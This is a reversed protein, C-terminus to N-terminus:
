DRPARELTLNVVRWNISLCQAPLEGRVITAAIAAIAEANAKALELQALALAERAADVTDRAITLDIAVDHRIAHLRGDHNHTMDPRGTTATTTTTTTTDTHKPTRNNM